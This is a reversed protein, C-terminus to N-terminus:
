TKPITNNEDNIDNTTNNNNNNNNDDDSISFLERTENDADKIIGSLGPPFKGAISLLGVLLGDFAPVLAAIMPEVLFSFSYAELHITQIWEKFAAVSVGTIIWLLGARPYIM